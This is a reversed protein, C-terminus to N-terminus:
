RTVWAKEYSFLEVYREKILEPNLQNATSLLMKAHYKDNRYMKFIKFYLEGLDDNTQNKIVVKDKIPILEFPSSITDKNEFYLYPWYISDGYAREAIDELGDGWKLLVTSQGKTFFELQEKKTIKIEQYENYFDFFLSILISMSALFLISWLILKSQNTIKSKKPSFTEHKEIPQEQIIDSKFNDQLGSLSSPLADSSIDTNKEEKKEEITLKEKIEEAVQEDFIEDQLKEKKEAVGEIKETKPLNFSDLQKRLSLATHFRIGYQAPIDIESALQPNYSKHQEHWRLKFTGLNPIAQMKEQKLYQSTKEFYGNIIKSVLDNDMDLKKSLSDILNNKTIKKNM